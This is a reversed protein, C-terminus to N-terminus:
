GKVGKGLEADCRALEKKVEELTPNETPSLTGKNKMELLINLNQQFLDRAARWLELREGGATRRSQALATHADALDRYAIAKATLLSSDLEQGETTKIGGLTKQAHELATTQNGLKAFSKAVKACAEIVLWQKWTNEADSKVLEERGALVRRFNDNAQAHRGMAEFVTGIRLRAAEIRHSVDKPDSAALEDSLSASQRYDLLATQLYKKEGLQKAWYLQVDGLYYYNASLLSKYDTNMPFEALLRQIIDVAKRQMSLAGALDNTALLSEAIAQHVASLSRRDDESQPNEALLAEYLTLAKREHELAGQWDSQSALTRGFEGLNNALIRRYLADTPEEVVVQEAMQVAKRYIELAEHLQGIEILLAGLYRYSNALGARWRTNAPDTALLSERIALAKRRSEIAGTTDGLNAYASGGQASSIKEYARALEIQLSADGSDSQALDNLYDLMDKVLKERVATSGPLDIIQDHYDFVVLNALNRVDNFRREAEAQKALAIERQRSAVRAQWTTLLIGGILSLFVLGAAIVAARNRRIFKSARYSFTDKRALVPLGELYRRIDESFQEVSVYRREKEKRIAKLIINDLDGSLTRRLKEPSVPQTKKNAPELNERAVTDPAVAHTEYNQYVATSPKVPDSSAIMEAIEVPSRSKFRYPRQKTLLEYLVIGLSYIDSATTIHEGRLQEPSAYEPTMLRGGALTETQYDGSEQSLLKAIGFDLLKAVGENTVLINSPKIDRHIVLHQHAYQVAACIQRFLKLREPVTLENAECYDNLPKGEIYEMVFFPLGTSTTGGDLLRAINPHDFAALIQRESLFRNLIFDSDMGRKVLKIAVQKHYTQDDREALYVAGMGGRGIERLLKYNGIQGQPTEEEVFGLYLKDLDATHLALTAKEHSALLSRVEARLDDDAGCARALFSEREVTPCELAAQFLEDIKKWREPNM